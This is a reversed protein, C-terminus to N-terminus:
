DNTALSQNINMVSDISCSCSHRNLKLPMIFTKLAKQTDTYHPSISNQKHISVYACSVHMCVCMSWIFASIYECVCVCVCVCVFASDPVTHAEGVGLSEIKKNVILTKGAHGGCHTLDVLLLSIFIAEKIHYISRVFEETLFKLISSM